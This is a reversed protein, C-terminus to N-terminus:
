PASYTVSSLIAEILPTQAEIEDPALFVAFTVYGQSVPKLAVYMGIQSAADTNAGTAKIIEADGLTLTQKEGLTIGIGSALGNFSFDFLETATPVTTGPQLNIQFALGGPRSRLFNLTAEGDANNFLFVGVTAIPDKWGDPYSVTVGDSSTVSQSLAPLAPEDPVPTDAPASTSSAPTGGCGAVGIVLLISLLLLGPKRM